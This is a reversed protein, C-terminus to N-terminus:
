ETYVRHDDLVARLQQAWWPIARVVEVLLHIEEPGPGPELGLPLGLPLEQDTLRIKSRQTALRPLLHRHEQLGTLVHM